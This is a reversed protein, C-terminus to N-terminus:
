LAPGVRPGPRAAPSHGPLHSKTHSPSCPLVAQRKRVTGTARAPAEWSRASPIEPQLSPMAQYELLGMGDRLVHGRPTKEIAAPWAINAAIM